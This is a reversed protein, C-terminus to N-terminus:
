DCFVINMEKNVAAIIHVNNHSDVMSQNFFHFGNKLFDAQLFHSWFGSQIIYKFVNHLQETFSGSGDDM